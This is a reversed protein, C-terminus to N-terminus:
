VLGLCLFGVLVVGHSLWGFFGLSFYNIVELLLTQPNNSYRKPAAIAQDLPEDDGLDTQQSKSQNVISHMLCVLLKSRM